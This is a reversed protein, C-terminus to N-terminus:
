RRWLTRGHRIFVGDAVKIAPRTAELSRVIKFGSLRSWIGRKCRGRHRRAGERGGDRGAGAGARVAVRGLDENASSIVKVSPRTCTRRDTTRNSPRSSPFTRGSLQPGPEVIASPPQEQGELKRYNM